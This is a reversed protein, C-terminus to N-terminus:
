RLTLVNIYKFLIKNRVEVEKWTKGIELYNVMYFKDYEVDNPNICKHQKKRMHERLVHRETFLNNCFLCRLNELREHLKELLEDVFVQLQIM